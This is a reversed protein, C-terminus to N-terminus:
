QLLDELKINFEDVSGGHASSSVNHHIGFYNLVIEKVKEPTLVSCNGKRTGQMAENEVAARSKAMTKGEALIAEAASPIDRLYDLLSQGLFQIYGDDRNQEMELKIKAKAQEVM